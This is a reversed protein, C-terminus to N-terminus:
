PQYDIRLNTWKCSLTTGSGYRQAAFCVRANATTLAQLGAGADGGVGGTLATPWTSGMQGYYFQPSHHALDDIVIMQMNNSAALTLGQSVNVLASGANLWTSTFGTGGATKGRGLIYGGSGAASFDGGDWVGIFAEDYNAASNNASNVGWIRLKMGPHYGPILDAFKFEVRPASVDANGFSTSAKPIITLGTGDAAVTMNSTANATNVAYCTIGAVVTQGDSSFTKNEHGAFDFQFNLACRWGNQRNSTIVEEYPAGLEHIAPDALFASGVALMSFGLKVQGTAPLQYILSRYQWGTTWPRATIQPDNHAGGVTEATLAPTQTPFVGSLAPVYFMGGIVVVKNALEPNATVDLTIGKGAFMAEGSLRYAPRGKYTISTSLTMEGTIYVNAANPMRTMCEAIVDHGLLNQRSVGTISTKGIDHLAGGFTFNLPLPDAFGTCDKISFKQAFGLTSDAYYAYIPNVNTTFQRCHKFTLDVSGNSCVFVEHNTSQASYCGDLTIGPNSNAVDWYNGGASEDLTYTWASPVTTSISGRFIVIDAYRGTADNTFHIGSTPYSISASPGAGECQSEFYLDLFKCAGIQTGLIGGGANNQFICSKDVSVSVSGAIVLGFMTNWSFTTSGIHFGNMAFAYVGGILGHQQNYSFDCATIDVQFSYDMCGGAERAGTVRIDHFTANSMHRLRLGNQASHTPGTDDCKFYLGSVHLEKRYAETNINATEPYHILATYDGADTCYQLVSAGAGAGMITVPVDALSLACTYGNADAAGAGKSLWWTGPPVYVIGNVAQADTIAAQFGATNTAGYSRNGAKCSYPYRAINYIGFLREFIGVIFDITDRIFRDLGKPGTDGNGGAYGAVQGAYNMEDPKSGPGSIPLPPPNIQPPPIAYGNKLVIFNRIDVDTVGAAVTTLQVRYSGEADPQAFAFTPTSNPGQVTTAIASGPPTYLLEYKWSTVGTNDGNSCTVAGDTMTGVVARGASDTNSGQTFKLLSTM